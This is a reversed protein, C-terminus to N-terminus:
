RRRKPVVAPNRRASQKDKLASIRLEVVKANPYVDRISDLLDEAEDLRGQQEVVDALLFVAPIRKEQTVGELQLLDRLATESGDLEEALLRTEALTSLCDAKTDPEVELQLCMDLMKAALSFELRRLYAQSLRRFVVARDEPAVEEDMALTELLTVARDHKHMDTVLEALQMQIQRRITPVEDFEVLMIELYEAAAAKDQRLSLAIDLLRQWIEWRREGEPNKRLYREFYMEADGLDREKMAEEALALDDIDMRTPEERIGDYFVFAGALALALLILKPWASGQKSETHTSM